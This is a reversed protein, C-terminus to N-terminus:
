KIEGILSQYIEIDELLQGYDASEEKNRDDWNEKLELMWYLGRQLFLKTEENM